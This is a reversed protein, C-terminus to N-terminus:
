LDVEKRIRSLHRPTINLFTALFNVPVQQIYHPYEKLLKEYRVKANHKQISFLKNELEIYQEEILTKFFQTWKLNDHCLQDVSEKSISYLHTTGISQITEESAKGTIFSSLATMLSKEFTLCYTIEESKDNLYFSRLMGKEIWVLEKAIRGEHILVEKNQLVKQHTLCELEKWEQETLLHQSIFYDKM